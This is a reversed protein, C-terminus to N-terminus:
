TLTYAAQLRECIRDQRHGDGSTAVSASLVHAIFLLIGTERCIYCVVSKVVARNFYIHDAMNLDMIFIVNGFNNALKEYCRENPSIYPLIKPM